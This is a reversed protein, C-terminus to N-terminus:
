VYSPVELYHATGDVYAWQDLIHQPITLVKTSYTARPKLYMTPVKSKDRRRLFGLGADDLRREITDNSFERMEPFQRKISTVTTKKRGRKEIVHELIQKDQKATTVRPRGSGEEREGRWKPNETLKRVATAIAALSWKKRGSPKRMIRVIDAAGLGHYMHAKIQGVDFPSLQYGPMPFCIILRLVRLCLLSYALSSLFTGVYLVM